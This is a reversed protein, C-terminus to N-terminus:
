EESFMEPNDKILMYMATSLKEVQEEKLKIGYLEDLGHIAEHLLTAKQQEISSASNLIIREQGHLIQGYLDNNEDHLNPEFEIDYKKYLISVNKPIKM